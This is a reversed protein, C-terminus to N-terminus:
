VITLINEIRLIYIEKGNHWYKDNGLFRLIEISQGICFEAVTKWFAMDCIYACRVVM